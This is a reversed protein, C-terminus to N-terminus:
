LIKRRVVDTEKYDARENAALNQQQNQEQLQAGGFPM